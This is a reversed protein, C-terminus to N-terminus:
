IKNTNNWIFLEFEGFKHNSKHYEVEKILLESSLPDSIRQMCKYVIIEDKVMIQKGSAPGDCLMIVKIDM